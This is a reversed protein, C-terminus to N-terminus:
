TINGHEDMEIPHRVKFVGYGFAHSSSEFTPQGLSDPREIYAIIADRRETPLMKVKSEISQGSSLVVRSAPMACLTYVEGPIVKTKFQITMKSLDGTGPPFVESAVTEMADKLMTSLIGGHVVDPWGEVGNGFYVIMTLAGMTRHFFIRQRELGTLMIPVLISRLIFNVVQVIGKSGTLTGTVFTRGKGLDGSVVRPAVPWEEWEPDNLLGEMAPHENMMETIEDMMESEEETGAEFPGQLYAWTILSSGAGFGLLLSSVALGATTWIRRLLPAKETIATTPAHQGTQAVAEPMPMQHPNQFYEKHPTGHQLRILQLM